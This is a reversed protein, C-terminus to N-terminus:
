SGSRFCQIGGEDPSAFRFRNQQGSVDLGPAAAWSWALPRSPLQEVGDLAIGDEVVAQPHLNSSGGGDLPSVLQRFVGLVSSISVCSARASWGRAWIPAIM